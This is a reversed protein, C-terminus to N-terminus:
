KFRRWIVIAATVPLILAAILAIAHDTQSISHLLTGTADFSHPGTHALATTPALAAFTFLIRSM